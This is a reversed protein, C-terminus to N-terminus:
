AEFRAAESESLLGVIRAALDPGAVIPHAHFLRAARAELACLDDSLAPARARLRAVHAGTFKLREPEVWGARIFAQTKRACRCPNAPNMLGCTGRMFAALDRRARELRKRFAAPRVGLIEGGVVSNAGVVEGIVYAARQDRSLCLLMGLMCGVKAEEVLLRREPDSPAVDGLPAAPLQDLEMGYAEFSVIAREMARPKADLFRNVVVRYAWTRFSARGQFGSLRTVIRILAEQALDEADAPSLVLRLALNYVWRQHRRILAELAEADGAVAQACLRADDDEGEDQTQGDRTAELWRADGGSLDQELENM